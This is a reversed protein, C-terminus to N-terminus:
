ITRGFALVGRRALVRVARQAFDHSVGYFEAVKLPRVRDGAIGSAKIDQSLVAVLREFTM